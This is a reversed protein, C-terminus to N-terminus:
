IEGNAVRIGLEGAKKLMELKKKLGVRSSIIAIVESSRSQLSELEKMNNVVVPSLGSPHLDRVEKPKRYGPQALPQFGRVKRRSKNDRRRPKRWSEQRELRFYKDADYRTFSPVKSESNTKVKQIKRRIALVKAQM